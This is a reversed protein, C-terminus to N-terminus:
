EFCLLTNQFPSARYANSDQFFDWRRRFLPAQFCCSTCFTGCLSTKKNRHPQGEVGVLCFPLRQWMESNFDFSCRFIIIIDSSNPCLLCFGFLLTYTGVLYLMNTQCSQKLRMCLNMWQCHFHSHRRGCGAWVVSICWVAAKQVCATEFVLLVKPNKPPFFVFDIKNLCRFM